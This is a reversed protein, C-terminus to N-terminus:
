RRSARVPASQLVLYSGAAPMEGEWSRDRVAIRVRDHGVQLEVHPEGSGDAGPARVRRMERRTFRALGAAIGRDIWRGAGDVVDIELDGGAARVMRYLEGVWTAVPAARGSGRTVRAPGAPHPRDLPGARSDPRVDTRGRVPPRPAPPSLSTLRQSM